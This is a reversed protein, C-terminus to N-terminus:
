VAAPRGRGLRRRLRVTTGAEGREVEVSDMRGDVIKLGRGHTQDRRPRWSGFDRVSAHLEGDEIRAEVDFSADGPGYAHEITNCAAESVTLIIEYLEVEDDVAPALFRELRRRLSVLSDPEAPLTMRLVGAQVPQLRVALLAVDDAPDVGSFSERLVDDCMLELEGRAGEATAGLEKLLGDLPQGRREVLGDTYLLITAGGPVQGHALRFAPRETAGIPVSSPAELFSARGDALVLPPPHGASTWAVEGTDRDLVMFLATAMVDESSALVLRNLRAVTEQPSGDILAYARFANRLQGMVAAARTGHGVVDGVILAVRGDGLELVDYWDGGVGTGEGAPLYRAALQLGDIRPLEQPLLSRQLTEAINHEVEYVRRLEEEMGKRDHIDTAVGVYGVFREGDYRPVGHDLVWRYSGDARRLRYEVRLEDRRESVATWTAMMAKVDDPHVGLEWSEGLEDELTTGTYRLWGQNVFTVRGEADTTWMLAPVEDALERVRAESDRLMQEWMRREHIDTATGVYGVFRGGEYRPMGVEAVWRHRGEATRLRYEMQFQRRGRLAKLWRRSLEDRDDPHASSAWTDGRQEELTRGTFHLWGRNVFTVQGAADTMWM